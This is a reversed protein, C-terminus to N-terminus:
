RIQSTALASLYPSLGVGKRAGKFLVHEGYGAQVLAQVAYDYHGNLDEKRHADATIIIPVNGKCLLRLIELSPYAEAIKGRNMGGTNLEVVCGSSSALKAVETVRNQWAESERSFFRGNKNNLKVIDLHGLIDFGGLCIMEAVTDWYANMMALGDGNFGEAIGAELEDLPGDVTFPRAGNDPVIYHVSGIIYDLGLAQIDKDLASAMGKIYDCELGLFVDLKGQWRRRAARVQEVYQELQDESLHWDTKMGTKKFIPAHSSFGISVLGKEHAAACMAQVDDKGDCFTTHVHLSSFRMTM